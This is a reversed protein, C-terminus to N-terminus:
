AVMLRPAPSLIRGPRPAPDDVPSEDVRIPVGNVLVHRVGVPEPATLRESDAPFDRVRRTPGPAITSPDFVAIDAALGAVLRGRDVFGFLDAQASTLRRVAEEIPMLSRDRVWKGLFDTAQPADCLQGVHAGADSLGLACHDAQLLVAVEDEDDNTLVARVWMSLEEAALDLVVRLPSQGREAALDAVRKGVLEPHRDSESITYTDWRPRAAPMADIASQARDQWSPDAYARRRETSNQSMLEAFVDCANLPFPDDMRFSFALPRPSVQPWVDAGRGIGDAHVRLRRRHEGDPRTMLAGFTFPVGIRPQLDYYGDFDWGEGATVEVVGRGWDRMVELLALFESHEAVRSPIPMGDLGRHTPAFSTALGAAGARLSEALVRQMASVEDATAPRRYADEGMVFLRLATHGAYTAYNLATGRRRVSALYEDFTVFDWPVGAELAAFDMDEVNELTRAIIDRHEPRTPALSFGCNGTVVTTVGHFCSPSLGPDWFVQADYHTHIDIFGPAVVCGSADLEVADRAVDAVILGDAVAVDRQEGPCGTGDVVIGGRIVVAHSDSV